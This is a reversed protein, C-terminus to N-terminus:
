TRGYDTMKLVGEFNNVIHNLGGKDRHLLNTSRAEGGAEALGRKSSAFVLRSLHPSYSRSPLDASRGEYLRFKTEALCVLLYPIVRRGTPLNGAAVRRNYYFNNKIGFQEATSFDMLFLM